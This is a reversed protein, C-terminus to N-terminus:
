KDIRQDPTMAPASAFDKMYRAMFTYFYNPFSKGREDTLYDHASWRENPDKQIMHTVMRQFTSGFRLFVRMVM